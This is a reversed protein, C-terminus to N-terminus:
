TIVWNTLIYKISDLHENGHERSETVPRQGSNPSNLWCWIWELIIRGDVDIRLIFTRMLRQEPLTKLFQKWLWCTDHRGHFHFIYVHSHRPQSRVVSGFIGTKLSLTSGPVWVTYPWNLLKEHQLRGTIENLAPCSKCCNSPEYISVGRLNPTGLRHTLAYTRPNSRVGM